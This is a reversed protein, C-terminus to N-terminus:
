QKGKLMPVFIFYGFFQKEYSNDSTKIIRTMIQSSGSQGVPAVLKGGIKLQKILAEPIQEVAATIIIADFPSYEPLGDYGDAWFCKVNYNLEKLLNSAKQHLEFIREVTYVEVGMQALIAAQYGSGTGIELVKQGNKIELLQTQFAVTYPQSITQGCSIGLAQDEYALNELGTPVFFHRPVNLMAELVNPDSIGKAKLNEVLIRRRGQTLFTDKKEM